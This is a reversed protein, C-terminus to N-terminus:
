LKEALVICEVASTGLDRGSAAVIDKATQASHDHEVLKYGYQALFSEIEDPELGFKWLNKEVTGKYLFATGFMDKGEIFAKRVYTFVLRSGAAAKSLQEMTRRASAEDLYQSVAEWIYFAPAGLDLGGDRLVESLDDEQFDVPLMRVHDPVAGYHSSVLGRKQAINEQLDVEYFTSSKPLDERYAYTSFGTGLNAFVDMGDAIAASMANEIFAKRAPFIAWAGAAKSESMRVIWNRVSSFRSAALWIKINSPAMWLANADELLRRGEPFKQEVAMVTAPATATKAPSQAM